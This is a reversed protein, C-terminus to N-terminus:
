VHNSFITSVKLEGMQSCDTHPHTSKEKWALSNLLRHFYIMKLETDNDTLLKRCVGFPFSIHNRWATVVEQATKNKIPICFTFGTLMCVATLAYRNGKSSPPYFEGILDICIFEMQQVGPEFIQKEFQTKQVRQKACTPCSKSHVLVHKRMGKWYYVCKMAAYTRQYGNHGSQNHGLHLVTHILDEPVVAAEFKHGNDVVSRYLVGKKIFYFQAYQGQIGKQKLQRVKLDKDQLCSFKENSLPLKVSYPSNEFNDYTINSECIDVDGLSTIVEHVMKGKAKPLTEFAYHGFEYDKLEPQLEVDPDIDILRSLTDALINVKGAIHVFKLKFSEIEMALNNITNNLTM